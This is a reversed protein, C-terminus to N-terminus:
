SPVWCESAHAHQPHIEYQFQLKVDKAGLHEVSCFGIQDFESTGLEWVM